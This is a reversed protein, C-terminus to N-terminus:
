SRGEQKAADLWQDTLAFAGVFPRPLKQEDIIDTALAEELLVIVEKAM